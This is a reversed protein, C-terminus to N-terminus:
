SKLLGKKNIYTSVDIDFDYDRWDYNKSKTKNVIMTEFGFIDSNYEILVNLLKEIEKKIHKNLEEEADLLDDNNNLDYLENELITATIRVKISFTKDKLKIKTDADTVDIEIGNAMFNSSDINDLVKYTEVYDYSVEHVPKNDRFIYGSEIEIDENVYPIIIDKTDNYIIELIKSFNFVNNRKLIKFIKKGLDIDKEQYVDSSESLVFYFTANTDPNILFYDTMTKVDVNKTFLVANLHSLYIEKENSLLINELADSISKGEGDYINTKDNDYVEVSILYLDDKYDIMMSSVVSLDELENYNYCGTVFVLSIIILLIKKM